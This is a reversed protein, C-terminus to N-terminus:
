REIAKELTEGSIQFGAGHSHPLYSLVFLSSSGEREIFYEVNAPKVLKYNEDLPQPELTLSIHTPLGKNRIDLEREVKSSVRQDTRYAEGDTANVLADYPVDALPRESSLLKFRRM